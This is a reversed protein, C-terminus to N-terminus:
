LIVQNVSYRKIIDNEWWSTNTLRDHGSDDTSDDSWSNFSGSETKSPEFRYPVHLYVM